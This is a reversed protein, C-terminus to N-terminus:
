LDLDTLRAAVFARMDGGSFLHGRVGAAAAAEVDSPKDGILDSSSADIQLAKIASLLMGPAPKRAPSDRDYEPLPAGPLYPCMEIRDIRAGQAELAGTMREHLLAVDAETFYGRAVGSQNTVVVVARGAQNAATIVAAIGSIFEFRDWSGVYGHDVNIVGDRDLFLAPRSM